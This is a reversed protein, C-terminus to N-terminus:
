ILGSRLRTTGVTQTGFSGEGKTRAILKGLVNLADSIEIPSNTM